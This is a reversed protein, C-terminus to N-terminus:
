GWLKWWPKRAPAAPKRMFRAYTKPLLPELDHEDNWEAGTPEAPHAPGEAVKDKLKREELARMCTYGIGEQGADPESDILPVLEDPNALATEYAKRGCSIIWNRWDMFGDDSCGGQALYAVGWLLTTYLRYEHETWLRDFEILEEDPLELLAALLKEENRTMERDHTREIIEWFQETTM